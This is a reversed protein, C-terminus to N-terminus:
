IGTSLIAVGALAVSTGAVGRLTIREGLTWADLFLSFVPSTSLLVAAVAAPAMQVGAMMLMIAIYTGTFSAGGIRLAMGGGRFVAAVRPLSGGVLTIVLLGAAAALLRVFSAPLFPINEMGEKAIVIGAGQGFAALVGLAIGAASFAAGPRTEGNGSKRAIVLTVGLLVVAAGWYQRSTLRESLWIWALLATFVPALTQLLLTRYPGIRAVAGFLATDGITIGVIGSVAIVILDYRAAGALVTMQGVALVTLGLLVTALSCKVLNVTRAGHREIAPRFLSVSFAWLFAAGICAAEGLLTHDL